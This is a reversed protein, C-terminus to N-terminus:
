SSQGLHHLCSTSGFGDHIRQTIQILGVVVFFEDKYHEGLMETLEKRISEHKKYISELRELDYKYFLNYYDELLVNVREYVLLLAKNLKVKNDKLLFVCIDRYEDGIKELLWSIIYLYTTKSQSEIIGRNLLSHCYNTLKNSTEELVLLENLNAYDGTKITELSNKALTLTVLFTRRLMGEFDSGQWGAVNKIVCRKSSQEIIEYGMLMTNIRKQVIKVTKPDNFLVEVEDYGNKHVVALISKIVTENAKSFDLQIKKPETVIDGVELVLRNKEEKIEIEDGAKIGTDRAWKRPLTVTLTDNGQKIVRRKM